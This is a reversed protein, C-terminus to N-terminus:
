LKALRGRLMAGGGLYLFLGAAALLWVTFPVAGFIKGVSFSLAGNVGASMREASTKVGEVFESELAASDEASNVAGNGLAREYYEAHSIYGANRSEAAREALRQQGANARDANEQDYGTLKDLLWM